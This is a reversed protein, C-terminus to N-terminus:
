GLCSPRDPAACHARKQRSHSLRNSYILDTVAAENKQTSFDSAASFLALTGCALAALATVSLFGRAFQNELMTTRLSRARRENWESITLSPHLRTSGTGRLEEVRVITSVAAPVAGLRIRGGLRFCRNGHGCGVVVENGTGLLETPRYIVVEPGAEEPRIKDWGSVFRRM